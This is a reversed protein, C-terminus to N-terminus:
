AMKKEVKPTRTYVHTHIYTHVNVLIDEPFVAIASKFPLNGKLSLCYKPLAHLKSLPTALFNNLPKELYFPRLTGAVNKPCAWKRYWARKLALRIM